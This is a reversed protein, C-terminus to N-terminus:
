PNVELETLAEQNLQILDDNAPNYYYGGKMQARSEKNNSIRQIEFPEPLVFIRQKNNFFMRQSDVFWGQGQAQAGESLELMEFDSPFATLTDRTFFTGRTGTASYVQEEYTWQLTPGNMFIEQNESSYLASPAHLIIQPGNMERQEFRFHEFQLITQPEVDSHSPNSVSTNEIWFSVLVVWSWFLVPLWPIKTVYHGLLNLRNLTFDSIKKVDPTM